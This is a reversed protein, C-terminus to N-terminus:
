TIQAELSVETAVTPGRPRTAPLDVPVVVMVAVLEANKPLMMPEAGTVTLEAASTEIATFGPLLKM